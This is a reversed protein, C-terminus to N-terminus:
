MVDEKKADLVRVLATEILYFGGFLVPRHTLQLALEIGAEVLAEGEAAIFLTDTPERPFPLGHRLCAVQELFGENQLKEAQVLAAL